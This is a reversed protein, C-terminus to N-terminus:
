EMQYLFSYRLRFEYCTVHSVQESTEIRLSQLLNTWVKGRRAKSTPFLEGGDNFLFIQIDHSRNTTGDSSNNTEPIGDSCQCTTVPVPIPRHYTWLDWKNILGLFQSRDDSEWKSLVQVHRVTPRLLQEGLEKGTPINSRDHWCYRRINDHETFFVGAVLLPLWEYICVWSQSYLRILRYEGSLLENASM